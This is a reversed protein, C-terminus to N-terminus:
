FAWEGGRTLCGIAEVVVVEESVVGEEELLVVEDEAEGEGEGVGDSCVLMRRGVVM